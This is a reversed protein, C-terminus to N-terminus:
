QRQQANALRAKNSFIKLLSILFHQVWKCKVLSKLLQLIYYSISRKLHLLKKTHGGLRNRRLPVLYISKCNTHQSYLLSRLINIWGGQKARSAARIQALLYMTFVQPLSPKWMRMRRCGKWTMRILLINDQAPASLHSERCYDIYFINTLTFGNCALSTASINLNRLNYAIIEQGVKQNEPELSSHATSETFGLAGHGTHVNTLHDHRNTGLGWVLLM